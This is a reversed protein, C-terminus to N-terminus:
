SPTCAGSTTSRATREALHVDPVLASARLAYGLNPQALSRSFVM